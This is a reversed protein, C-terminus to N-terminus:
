RIVRNIIRHLQRRQVRKLYGSPGRRALARADRWIRLLRWQNM